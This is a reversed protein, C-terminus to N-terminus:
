STSRANWDHVTRYYFSQQYINTSSTPFTHHYHRTAREMQLCYSPPSENNIHKYDVYKVIYKSLQGPFNKYCIQLQAIHVLIMLYGDQLEVNCAKVEHSCSSLNRILFNLTKIAKIATNRIHTSRSLKNGLLIGLHLHLSSVNLKYNTLLPSQSRTFHMITCKMVNFGLHWKTAWTFLQDLDNQLQIADKETRYLLCDDAFLWLSSSLGDAIDNIYLLFM